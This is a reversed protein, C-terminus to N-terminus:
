GESIKVVVAEDIHYDVIQIALGGNELVVAAAVVIPGGDFKDPAAFVAVSDASPDLDDAAPEGLPIFNVRAAAIKRGIVRAEVVAQLFLSFDVQDFNV